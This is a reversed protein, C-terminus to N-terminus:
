AEGVYELVFQNYQQSTIVWFSDSLMADYCEFHYEDNGDSYLYVYDNIEKSTETATFEMEHYLLSNKWIQVGYPNSVVLSVLIFRFSAKYWGVQKLSLTTNPNNLSFFDSDNTRIDNLILTFLFLQDSEIAEWLGVIGTQTEHEREEPYYTRIVSFVGVGLASVGIILSIVILANLKKTSMM